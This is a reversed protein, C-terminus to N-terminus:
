FSGYVSIAHELGEGLTLPSRGLLSVSQDCSVAPLSGLLSPDGDYPEFLLGRM